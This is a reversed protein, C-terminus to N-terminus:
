RNQREAGEHLAEEMAAVKEELQTLRQVVAGSPETPTSPVTPLAVSRRPWFTKLLAVILLLLLVGQALLTEVSPFVGLV